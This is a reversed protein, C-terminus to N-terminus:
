NRLLLSSRSRAVFSEGVIPGLMSLAWPFNLQNAQCSRGEGKTWGGKVMQKYELVGNGSDNVSRRQWM